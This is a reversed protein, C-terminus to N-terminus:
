LFWKLFEFKQPIHGKPWMPWTVYLKMFIINMDVSIKSSLSRGCNQETPVVAFEGKFRIKMVYPVFEM